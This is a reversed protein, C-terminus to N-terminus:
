GCVHETNAVLARDEVDIHTVLWDQILAIAHMRDARGLILDLRALLENHQDHHVAIDVGRDAAWAEESAFHFAAYVALGEAVHQVDPAARLAVYWAFLMRHQQDIEPAGLAYRRSLTEVAAWDLTSPLIGAPLRPPMANAAM